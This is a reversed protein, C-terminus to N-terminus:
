EQDEGESADKEQKRLSLVELMVDAKDDDTKAMRRAVKIDAWADEFEYIEKELGARKVRCDFSDKIEIAATLDEIAREKGDEIRWDSVQIGARESHGRMKRFDKDMGAWCDARLELAVANNPAMAVLANAHELAQPYEDREARIQAAGYHYLMVQEPVCFGIGKDLEDLAYTMEKSKCDPSYQYAKLFLARIRVAYAFPDASDHAIDTEADAITRDYDALSMYAFMRFIRLIDVLNKHKRGEHIQILERICKNANEFDKDKYANYFQELLRQGSQGLKKMAAKSNVLDYYLTKIEKDNFENSFAVMKDHGSLAQTSEAFAPSGGLLAFAALVIALGKKSLSGM